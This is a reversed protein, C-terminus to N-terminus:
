GFQFIGSLALKLKSSVFKAFLIFQVPDPLECTHEVKPVKVAGAETRADCSEIDEVVVIWLAILAM